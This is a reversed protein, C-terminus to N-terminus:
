DMSGHAKYSPASSPSMPRPSAVPSEEFRKIREYGCWLELPHEFGGEAILALASSDNPADFRISGISNREKRSVYFLHYHPM